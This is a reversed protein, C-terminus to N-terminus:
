FNKIYFDSKLALILSNLLVVSLLYFGFVAGILEWNNVHEMGFINPASEQFATLPNLYYLQHIMLSVILGMSSAFLLGYALIAWNNKTIVVRVVEIIGV